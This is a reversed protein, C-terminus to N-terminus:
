EYAEKYMPDNVHLLEKIIDAYQLNGAFRYGALILQELDEPEANPPLVMAALMSSKFLTSIIMCTWWWLSMVIFISPNVTIIRGIGHVSQEFPMHLMTQLLM